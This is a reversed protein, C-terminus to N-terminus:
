GQKLCSPGLKIKRIIFFASSNDKVRNLGPKEKTKHSQSPPPIGGGGRLESFILPIVVFSLPCINGGFINGNLDGVETSSTM